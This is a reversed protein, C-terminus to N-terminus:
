EPRKNRFYEVEKQYYRFNEEAQLSDEYFWFEEPVNMTMNDKCRSKRLSTLNLSNVPYSIRIISDESIIEYFFSKKGTLDLVCIDKFGLITDTFFTIENKNVLELIDDKLNYIAVTTNGIKTYGDINASAYYDLLYINIENNRRSYNTCSNPYNFVITLLKNEGMENKLSDVLENITLELSPNFPSPTFSKEKKICNSFLLVILIIAIYKKKM